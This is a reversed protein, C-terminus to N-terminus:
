VYFSVFLRIYHNSENALDTNVVNLCGYFAQPKNVDGTRIYGILAIMVDPM